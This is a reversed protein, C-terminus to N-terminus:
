TLSLMGSKGNIKVKQMYMKCSLLPINISQMLLIAHTCIFCCMKPYGAAWQQVQSGINEPPVRNGPVREWGQKDIFLLIITQFWCNKLQQM